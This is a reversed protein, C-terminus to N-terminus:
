RAPFIIVWKEKQGFHTIISLFYFHSTFVHFICEIGSTDAGSLEYEVDFVAHDFINLDHAAAVAVKLTYCSEKGAHVHIIGNCAHLADAATKFGGATGILDCFAEFANFILESEGSQPKQRKCLIINNKDFLSKQLPRRHEPSGKKDKQRNACYLINIQNDM